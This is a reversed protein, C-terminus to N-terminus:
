KEFKVETQDIEANAESQSQLKKDFYIKNECHNRLRNRASIKTGRM